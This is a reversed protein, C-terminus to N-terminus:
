LTDVKKFYAEILGIIDEVIASATIKGKEYAYENLFEHLLISKLSKAQM